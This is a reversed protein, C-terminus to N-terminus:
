ALPAPHAVAVPTPSSLALITTKPPGFAIHHRFPM